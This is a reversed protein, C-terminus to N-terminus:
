IGTLTITFRGEQAGVLAAVPVAVSSFRGTAELADRLASVAERRSATGSLVLTSKDSAYTISTISLGAPKEALAAALAGTPSTTANAVPALSTILKQTRVAAEQDASAPGDSPSSATEVSARAIRVSIYAPMIALIAVLAAAAIVGAGVLM